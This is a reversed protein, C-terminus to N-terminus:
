LLDNNSENRGSIRTKRLDKVIDNTNECFVTTGCLFFGMNFGAAGSLVM